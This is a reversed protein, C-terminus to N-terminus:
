QEHCAINYTKLTYKKGERYTGYLDIKINVIEKNFEKEEM